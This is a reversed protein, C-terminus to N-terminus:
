GIARGKSPTATRQVVRHSSRADRQGAGAPGARWGARGSRRVAAGGARGARDAESGVAGGVPGTRWSWLLAAVVGMAGIFVFRRRTSM